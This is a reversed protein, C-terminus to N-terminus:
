REIGDAQISFSYITKVFGVFCQLGFEPNFKGAVNIKM